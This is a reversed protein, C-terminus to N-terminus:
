DGIVVDAYGAEKADPGRLWFEKAAVLLDLKEKPINGRTALWINVTDQLHRFTRAQEELSTPTKEEVFFFGGAWTRVEHMMLESTSSMKRYGNSGACFVIFAGSAAIGRVQTEVIKGDAKWEDMLAKIRWTDFFLGGPSHIDIIAHDVKHKKLYEFYDRVEDIVKGEIAKLQYYGIQKNTGFNLIKVGNPYRLHADPTTEKLRNDPGIHCTRCDMRMTKPCAGGGGGTLADAIDRLSRAPDNAYVFSLPGEDDEAWAMTTFLVVISTFIVVIKKM